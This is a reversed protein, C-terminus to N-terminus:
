QGRLYARRLIPLLVTRPLYRAGLATVVNTLRPIVSRSGREMAEVGERAADASSMVLFSPMRDFDLGAARDFETAVFGPCLATATVGTGQLDTHLAETFALVFAKSASYTAQRPLPHFAAVSALNLVAGRGRAVMGPVYAGCLGVVGEVNTRVMSVEGEQDLDQFKGASGFGANNVLVDVTLGHQEVAAVIRERGEASSVDGAVVEVRVGHSGELEEALERLREERRAVLTVGRGRAALERAIDAGIGASAGTVLCTSSHAPPPIAM